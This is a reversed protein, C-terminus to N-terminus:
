IHTWSKRLLINRVNRRTTGFEDALKQQTYKRRRYKSRIMNVTEETLVCMPHLTGIPRFSRLKKVRDSVNGKPDTSFLHFPNVCTPNDCRHAVNVLPALMGNSIAFAVRHAPITRGRLYFKGYGHKTRAAVWNWCERLSCAEVKGWFRDCERDKLDSIEIGALCGTKPYDM